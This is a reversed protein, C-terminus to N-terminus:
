IIQIKFELKNKCKFGCCYKDTKSTGVLVLIDIRGVPCNPSLLIFIKFFNDVDIIRMRNSAVEATIALAGTLAWVGVRAVV